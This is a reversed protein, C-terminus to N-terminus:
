LSQRDHHLDRKDRNRDRQAKDLRHEKRKIEGVEKQAARYRGHNLDTQVARRDQRIARQDRKITRNDHRIDRRDHRIDATTADQEWAAQMSSQTTILLAGAALVASTMWRKIQM